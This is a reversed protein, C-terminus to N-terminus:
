ITWLASSRSPPSAAPPMMRATISDGLDLEEDGLVAPSQFNVVSGFLSNLPWDTCDKQITRYGLYAFSAAALSQEQLQTALAVFTMNPEFHARVPNTNMCPGRVTEQNVSASLSPNYRNALVEAFVVDQTGAERGMVLAWAAKFLNATTLGPVTLSPLPVRLEVQKLTGPTQRPPVLYTLQSGKLTARWFSKAELHDLQTLRRAWDLFSTERSLERGAYAAAIDNWMMGLSVADYLAHHIELRLRHCHQGDSAVYFQPLIDNRQSHPGEDPLIQSDVPHRLVIQYLRPGKQTFITRLIEHTQLVQACAFKIRAVDAPPEFILGTKLVLAHRDLEGLAVMSAQADTAEAVAEIDVAAFGEVPFDSVVPIEYPQTPPLSSSSTTVEECQSVVEALSLSQMLAQLPVVLGRRRCMGAARMAAISDGGLLMFNSERGIKQRIAQKASGQLHKATDQLQADALSVVATLMNGDDHRPQICVVAERVGSVRVLAREVEGLEFRQGRIKVQGDRLDHPNLPLLSEVVTEMPNSLLWSLTYAFQRLIRQMQATQLAVPNFDAEIAVKADHLFCNLSLIFQADVEYAEEMQLLGSAGTDSTVRAQPIINLQTQFGAAVGADRSVRRINALGYQLAPHNLLCRRAAMRQKLLAHITTSPDVEVRVPVVAATPGITSAFAPTRGSFVLGFSVARANTYATATLAWAVEIYAPLQARSINGPVFLDDRQRQFPETVPAASATPTPFIASEGRLRDAWFARAEHDAISHCFAVFNNFPIHQAPEQYNYIRVIDALMLATSTEDRIAHHTTLVLKGDVFASRLLPTGLGMTHNKEDELFEDLPQSFYKIQHEERLVVRVLGRRSSDVIRSRLIPTLSVLKALAFALRKRDASPSISFVATHKYRNPHMMSETMTGMQLATCECVDEIAETHFLRAEALEELVDTDLQPLSM